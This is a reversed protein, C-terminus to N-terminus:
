GGTDGREGEADEDLDHSDPTPIIAVLLLGTVVLWIGFLLMGMHRLKKM